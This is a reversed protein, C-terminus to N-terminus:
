IQENYDQLQGEQEQIKRTLQDILVVDFKSQEEGGENEIGMAGRM